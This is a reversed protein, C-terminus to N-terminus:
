RTHPHKARTGCHDCGSVTHASLLPRGHTRFPEGDPATTVIWHAFTTEIIDEHHDGGHTVTTAGVTMPYRARDVDTVLTAHGPDRDPHDPHAEGIIAVVFGHTAAHARDSVDLTFGFDTLNTTVHPELYAWANNITGDTSTTVTPLRDTVHTVKVTELTTDTVGVDALAHTASRTVRALTHATTAAAFRERARPSWDRDVNVAHGATDRRAQAAAVAADLRADLDAPVPM